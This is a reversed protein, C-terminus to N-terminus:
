SQVYKVGKGLTEIKSKSCTFALQSIAQMSFSWSWETNDLVWVKIVPFFRLLQNFSAPQGLRLQSAETFSNTQKMFLNLVYKLVNRIICIKQGAQQSPKNWSLSSEWYPYQSKVMSNSMGPLQVPKEEKGLSWTILVFNEIFLTYQSPFHISESLSWAVCIPSILFKVWKGFWGQIGPWDTGNLLGWLWIPIKSLVNESISNILFYKKNHKPVAAYM